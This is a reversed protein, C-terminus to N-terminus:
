TPEARERFASRLFRTALEHIGPTTSERPGAVNLVRINHEGLWNLLDARSREDGPDLVLCPRGYRKALSRTFESGGTLEEAALILTADSDRVNYRTRQAYDASPTEKLPFRADIVGDEARRGQPCWGGCALELELAVELAARDVGTQGGSVIKQLTLVAEGAM